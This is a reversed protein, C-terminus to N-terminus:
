PKFVSKKKDLLSDVYITKKIKKGDREIVLKVKKGSKKSLKRYIQSLNYLSAPMIGIRKLIDKERLGAKDAPSGETVSKIYYNNLEPGFAFLTLGSLNYYIDSNYKKKAKLYVANNVYDIILNFRSLIPNGILGHRPTTWQSLSDNEIKQFSSILNDFVYDQGMDLQSIRSLYGEIAGGLGRGLNGRMNIEPLKLMSDSDTNILLPIASGTDLLLNTSVTDQTDNIIKSKIFIKNSFFETDLKKYKDLNKIQAANEYLLISERKFDIQTILGRLFRTGIIGDIAQGTLEEINLFDEELVIIDRKVEKTNDLQFSVNRSIFANVVQDLDAGVLEIKKDYELDLLDAYVKKFLILHEAGSDLLFTLPLKEIRVKVAIFGNDYDFPIRIPTAQNTIIEKGMIQAHSNIRCIAFLLFVIIGNRVVYELYSM